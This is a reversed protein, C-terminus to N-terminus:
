IDGNAEAASLGVGTSWQFSGGSDQKQPVCSMKGGSNLSSAEWPASEESAHYPLLVTGGLIQERRPRYILVRAVIDPSHRKKFSPPTPSLASMGEAAADLM